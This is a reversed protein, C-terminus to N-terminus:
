LWKLIIILKKHPLIKMSYNCFEEILMQILAVSLLYLLTKKHLTSVELKLMIVSLSCM